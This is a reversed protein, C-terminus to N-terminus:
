GAHVRVSSFLSKGSCLQLKSVSPCLGAGARCLPSEMMRHSPVMPKKLPPPVPMATLPPLLADSNGQAAAKACTAAM